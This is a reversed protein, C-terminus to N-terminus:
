EYPTRITARVLISVPIGDRRLNNLYIRFDDACYLSIRVGNSYLLVCERHLVLSSIINFGDLLLRIRLRRALYFVLTLEGRRSM